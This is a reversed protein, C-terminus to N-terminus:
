LMFYNPLTDRIGPEQGFRTEEKLMLAGASLSDAKMSEIFRESNIDTDCWSSLKM